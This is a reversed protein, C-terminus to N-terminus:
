PQFNNRHKDSIRRFEWASFLFLLPLLPIAYRSHTLYVMHLLCMYAILSAMLLATTNRRFRWFGIFGPILLVYHLIIAVVLPIGPLPLWYFVDGWFLLFKGVTYWSAYTWFSRHFGTKLREVARETDQRNNVQLDDTAHWTRQEDMFLSPVTWPYTGLLLPNGGSETLPIFRDTVEYNRVWWPSLLLVFLLASVLGCRLLSRWPIRRRLILILLFIGPWLAITPRIYVAVAWALGFAAARLVTPREEARFALELLIMLALTFMAETFLFTSELWFPPYVVCFFVAWLSTKPSFLRNGIRYLLAFAGTMMVAQLIRVVQAATEGTGFVSMILAIFGPYAPTIFVTPRTPDNYTLVGTKLLIRASELYERDDSHYDYFSGHVLILIIKLALSIGLTIWLIRRPRNM